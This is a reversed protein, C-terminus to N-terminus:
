GIQLHRSRRRPHHRFCRGHRTEPRQLPLRVQGRRLPTRHIETRQRSKRHDSSPYGHSRNLVRTQPTKPLLVALSQPPLSFPFFTRTVRSRMSSAQWITPHGFPLDLLIGLFEMSSAPLATPPAPSPPISPIM